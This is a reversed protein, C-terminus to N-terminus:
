AFVIYAVVVVKSPDHADYHIRVGIPRGGEGQDFNDDVLPEGNSDSPVGTVPLEPYMQQSIGRADEFRKGVLATGLVISKDRWRKQEPTM